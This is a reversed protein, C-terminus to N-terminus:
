AGGEQYRLMERALPEALGIGGAEAFVKAYEEHLIGKFADEGAGGDFETKTSEGMMSNILQALFVGEFEIAARKAEEANSVRPTQLNSGSQQIASQMQANMFQDM